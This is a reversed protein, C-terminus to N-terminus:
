YQLCRRELLRYVQVLKEAFILVMAGEGIIVEIAVWDVKLMDELGSAQIRVIRTRVKTKQTPDARTTMCRRRRECVCCVWASDSTVSARTFVGREGVSGLVRYAGEPIGRGAVEGEGRGRECSDKADPESQLALSDLSDLSTLVMGNPRM